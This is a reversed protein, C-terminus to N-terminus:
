FLCSCINWMGNCTQNDAALKYGTNCSGLQTTAYKLAAVQELHVNM